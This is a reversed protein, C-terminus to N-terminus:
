LCSVFPRKIIWINRNEALRRWGPALFVPDMPPSHFRSETHFSLQPFYGSFQFLYFFLIEPYTQATYTYKLSTTSASGKGSPQQREGPSVSESLYKKLAGKSTYSVPVTSTLPFLKEGKRMTEMCCSVWLKFDTPHLPYLQKKKFFSGWEHQNKKEWSGSKGLSVNSPELVSISLLHRHAPYKM